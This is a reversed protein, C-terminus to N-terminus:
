LPFSFVHIAAVYAHSARRGKPRSHAAMVSHRADRLAGFHLGGEEATRPLPSQSARALIARPTADPGRKGAQIRGLRKGDRAGAQSTSGPVPGMQQKVSILTQLAPETM